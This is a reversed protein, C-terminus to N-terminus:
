SKRDIEKISKQQYIDDMIEFIREFILKKM